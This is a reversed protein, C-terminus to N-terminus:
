APSPMRDKKMRSKMIRRVVDREDEDEAENGLEDGSNKGTEHFELDDRKVLDDFENEEFDALPGDDNAVRGGRSMAHSRSKLIRRVIDSDPLDDEMEEDLMQDDGEARDIEDDSIYGGEAYNKGFAKRISKSATKLPDKDAPAAVPEVEGGEEYCQGGRNMKKKMAYARAMSM